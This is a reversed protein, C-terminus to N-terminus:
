RVAQAPGPEHNSNGGWRWLLAIAVLLLGSTVLGDIIQRSGLLLGPEGAGDALLRRQGLRAFVWGAHLGICPWLSKTRVFLLALAAGALCLNLFEVARFTQAIGAVTWFGVFLGTDWTVAGSGRGEWVADPMRFHVYAFFLSSLMVAAWPRVATWFIRLGLGRFVTEEIAAVACASVMAMVVSRAIRGTEGSPAWVAGGTLLQLALATGLMAFGIGFWALLAAVAGRRRYGLATWSWLGTWRFLLPLGILVPLWRLRDFYDPFGKRALYRNLENPAADAWWQVLWYAPPSALAAFLVAGFYVGLLLWAGRWSREEAGLGFLMFYTDRQM